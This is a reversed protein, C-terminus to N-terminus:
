NRSHCVHVINSRPELCTLMWKKEQVTNTTSLVGVVLAHTNNNNYLPGPLGNITYSDSVNPGAGTQLAQKIVDEPDVNWWEGASAVSNWALEDLHNSSRCIINTISVSYSKCAKTPSNSPENILLPAWTPVPEKDNVGHSGGQPICPPHFPRPGYREKFKWARWMTKAGQHM